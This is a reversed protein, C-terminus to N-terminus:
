QVAVRQGSCPMLATQGSSKGILPNASEETGMVEDTSDRSCEVAYRTAIVNGTAVDLQEVVKPAFERRRSM